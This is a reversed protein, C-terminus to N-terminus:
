HSMSLSQLDKCIIGDVDVEEGHVAKRMESLITEPNQIGKGKFFETTMEDREKKTLTKRITRKKPTVHIKASRLRALNHTKLYKQIKSECDVKKQILLAKQINLNKLQTRAEALEDCMQQESAINSM